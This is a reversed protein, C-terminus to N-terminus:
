PSNEGQHRLFSPVGGERQNKTTSLSIEEKKKKGGGWFFVDGYAEKGEKMPTVKKTREEGKKGTKKTLPEEKERKKRV